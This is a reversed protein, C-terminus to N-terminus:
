VSLARRLASAVQRSSRQLAAPASTGREQGLNISVRVDNRTGGLAGTPEIHGAATPVFVEPGREGVLFPRDPGVLGGFARGPLGFFSGVSSAFLQALQGLGSGGGSAGSANGLLQDLGSGIAKAAIQDLVSLAVRKLDEFELKGNRLASSLSKELVKGAADFGGLLGSDFERKMAAVDQAFGSTEARVSVVLENFDDDM